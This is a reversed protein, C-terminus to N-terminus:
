QIVIKKVQNFGEGSFSIFYVGAALEKLDLKDSIINNTREIEFFRYDNGHVDFIKMQVKGSVGEILINFIGESPNPFISITKNINKIINIGKNIIIVSYLGDEEPYINGMYAENYPDTMTYEFPILSQTSNGWVKLAIPNGAKFGKGSNLTSFVPLDNDFANQSNIKMAGIMIDGDFAAVEDGIELGELYITYVPDVANGGEFNFYVPAANTIGISKTNSDPYVLVDEAYMKVLYGQGPILDGINNVWITGIKRLMFGGTNRVFDLNDLINNFAFQADIPQDPLYSVLQYGEILSIPTQPDIVDGTIILIDALNMKFLYGETNVWNGINNVWVPGIKQLMYGQSNRVFELNDLIRYLINQIDPDEAIIRSSIFSYGENLEIIQEDFSSFSIPTLFGPFQFYNLSYTEQDAIAGNSSAALLFNNSSPSNGSNPNGSSFAYKTLSYNTSSAQQANIELPVVWLLLSQIMVLIVFFNIFKRYFM